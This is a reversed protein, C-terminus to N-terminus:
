RITNAVFGSLVLWNVKTSPIDSTMIGSLAESITACGVIGFITKIPVSAPLNTKSENFRGSDNISYFVFFFYNFDWQSNLFNWVFFIDFPFWNNVM